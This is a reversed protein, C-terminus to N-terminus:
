GLNFSLKEGDAPILLQEPSIGASDAYARLAERSVTGHDLADMHTAMVISNPAARCVAITQEADMVILVDDGWVAGSSHTIILDPQVQAIVNSVAEYWITDGAWYVTPEAGAQFVFGSVPGMQQLVEGTGHQGPTRTITLGQWRLSDRVPTVQSFGKAQIVAEDGPQCFITIDKPLLDQAAPDFHDSHLHSILVLEVGAIV